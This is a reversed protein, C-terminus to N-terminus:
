EIENFMSNQEIENSNNLNQKIKNFISDNFSREDNM